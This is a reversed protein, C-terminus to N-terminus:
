SPKGSVRASPSTKMVVCSRRGAHRLTLAALSTSRWSGALLGFFFNLLMPMPKRLNPLCVSTAGSGENGASIDDDFAACTKPSAGRLGVMTWTRGIPGSVGHLVGVLAGRELVNCDSGPPSRSGSLEVRLWWTSAALRVRASLRLAGGLFAPDGNSYSLMGGIGGFFSVGGPALVM